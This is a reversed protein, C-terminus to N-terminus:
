ACVELAVEMLRAIHVIDARYGHLTFQYGTPADLRKAQVLINLLRVTEHDTRPRGYAFNGVWYSCMVHRLVPSKPHMPLSDFVRKVLRYSRWDVPPPPPAEEWDWDTEDRKRFKVWAAEKFPPPVPSEGDLLCGRGWNRGESDIHRPILEDKM